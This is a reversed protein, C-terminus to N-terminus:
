WRGWRRRAPLFAGLLIAGAVLGAVPHVLYLGAGVAVATVGAAVRWLPDEILGLLRLGIPTGGDPLGWGAGDGWGGSRPGIDPGGLGERELRAREREGVERAMAEALARRELAQEEMAQDLSAQREARAEAEAGAQARRESWLRQNFTRQEDTDLPAGCSTCRNVFRSSDTECRCCRIFPQSSDALDDVELPRPTAPRFRDTHGSAVPPAQSAEPSTPPRPAGPEELAGFRADTDPSQDPASDSAGRPREIQLFRRRRDDPM